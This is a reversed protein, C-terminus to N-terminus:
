PTVEGTTDGNPPEEDPSTTTDVPEDERTADSESSGADSDDPEEGPTEVPTTEERDTADSDRQGSIQSEDEAPELPALGADFALVEGGAIEFPSTLGVERKGRELVEDVAEVIVGDPIAVTEDHTTFGWDKEGHFEVRYTGPEVPGIRYTGNPGTRVEAIGEDDDSLLIVTIGDLGAEDSGIGDQDADHWVHGTVYAPQPEPPEEPPLTTSTSTSTAPPLTTSPTTTTSTTPPVITTTTTTSTTTATTTITSTTSAIVPEADLCATALLPYPDIAEGDVWMGLHLHPARANGTSGVFGLLTGADVWGSGIAAPSYAALHAYTYTAGETALALTYGGYLSSRVQVGGPEIAVLPSDQPAPIDVGLHPGHARPDGFTDEFYGAQVVPCVLGSDTTAVAPQAAIEVPFVTQYEDIGIEASTVFGDLVPELFPFEITFSPSWSISGWWGYPSPPPVSNWQVWTTVAQYGAEVAGVEDWPLDPSVSVEVVIMATESPDIQEILETIAASLDCLSGEFLVDGSGQDILHIAFWGCAAEPDTFLESLALYVTSPISGLNEVTIEAVLPDPDCVLLEISHDDDEFVLDDPPWVGSGEIWGRYLHLGAKVDMWVGDGEVEFHFGVYEGDDPKTFWDTLTITLDDGIHVVIPDTGLTADPPEVWYDGDGLEYGDEEIKVAGSDGAEIEQPPDGDWFRIFSIAKKPFRRIRCDFDFDDPPDSVEIDLAGTRLSAITSTSTTWHAHAIGASYATILSTVVM